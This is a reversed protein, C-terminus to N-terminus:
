GDNDGPCEGLGKPDKLDEGATMERVINRGKNQMWTLSGEVTSETGQWGM